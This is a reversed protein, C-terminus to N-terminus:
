RWAELFSFGLRMAVPTKNKQIRQCEKAVEPEHSGRHVTPVLAPRRLRRAATAFVTRLESYTM